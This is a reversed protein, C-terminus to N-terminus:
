LDYKDRLKAIAQDVPIGKGAEIEAIGERIAAAMQHQRAIGEYEVFLEASMIVMDAYGNKTIYIPENLEHCRKSIGAGDKLEKIPLITMTTEKEQPELDGKIIGSYLSISLARCAFVHKGYM